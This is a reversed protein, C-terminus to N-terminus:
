SPNMFGLKRPELGEKGIVFLGVTFITPNQKTFIISRKYNTHPSHLVKTYGFM